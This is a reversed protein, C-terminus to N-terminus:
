VPTPRYGREMTSDLGTIGAFVEMYPLYTPATCLEDYWLVSGHFAPLLAICLEDYRRLGTDMTILYTMMGPLCPNKDEGSCRTIALVRKCFVKTYIM